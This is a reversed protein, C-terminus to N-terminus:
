LKDKKVKCSCILAGKKRASEFSHAYGRIMAHCQDFLPFSNLKGYSVSETDTHFIKYSEMLYTTETDTDRIKISTSLSLKFLSLQAITVSLGHYRGKEHTCIRQVPM